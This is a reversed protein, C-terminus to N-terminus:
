DPRQARRSRRVLRAPPLGLERSLRDHETEWWALAFAIVAEVGWWIVGAWLLGPVFLPFLEWDADLAERLEYLSLPSLVAALGIALPRRLRDARRIRAALLSRRSAADAPVITLTARGGGRSLRIEVDCSRSAHAVM